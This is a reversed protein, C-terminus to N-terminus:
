AKRYVAVAERLRNVQGARSASRELRRESRNWSGAWASLVRFPYRGVLLPAWPVIYEPTLYPSDHPVRELLDHWPGRLQELAGIDGIEHVKVAM